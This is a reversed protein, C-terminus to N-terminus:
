WMVREPGIRTVVTTPNATKRTATSNLGSVLPFTRTASSVTAQIERKLLPWQSPCGRRAAAGLTRRGVGRLRDVPVAEIALPPRLGFHASATGMAEAGLAPGARFIM